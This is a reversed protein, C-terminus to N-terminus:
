SNKLREIEDALALRGAATSVDVSFTINLLKVFTLSTAFDGLQFYNQAELLQLDNKNLLTQYAFVWTPNLNLATEAHSNSLSYQKSANLVFAYGAHLDANSLGMRLATSFQDVSLTLSDLKLYSWALGLYADTKTSDSVRAEIFLTRASLYNSQSFAGWADTIKQTYPDVTDPNNTGQCGMYVFVSWIIIIYGFYKKMNFGEFSNLSSILHKM